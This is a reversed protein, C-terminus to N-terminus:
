GWSRVEPRHLRLGVISLDRAINLHRGCLNATALQDLEAGVFALNTPAQVRQGSWDHAFLRTDGSWPDLFYISDPTYCGIYLNGDRDFALGDPVTGPVHWVIKSEGASGDDEITTRWVKSGGSEVVYLHRGDPALAIGNTFDHPATAWVSTGTEASVSYIVGDDAGWSGSDSVFLRGERDFAPYNPCKMPREPTGRSIESVTFDTANIKLLRANGAECVYLDGRADLAMGLVFSGEGCTAVMRWTGDLHGRYIEGQEGGAYLLQRNGDWVLDEPHNLGNWITTFVEPGFASSTV